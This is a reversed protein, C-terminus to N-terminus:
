EASDVHVSDEPNMISWGQTLRDKRAGMHVREHPVFIRCLNTHNNCVGKEAREIRGEVQQFLHYIGPHM